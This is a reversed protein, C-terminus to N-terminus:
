EKPLPEGTKFHGSTKRLVEYSWAFNEMFQSPLEVADWPVGNIGAISPYDVRTLLHHLMHGFEHFLTIVDDHALLSVGASDPPPFNCVLYGVPAVVDGDLNKRGICEDIWAGSRKGSRAYLDVYFGGILTDDSSRVDFYQVTEHWGSVSEVVSLKVGYLRDALAFLGDQAREVPFYQRLLDDSLSYRDRKLKELYYTTDWAELPEDALERLADLEAEAALQTKGVLETLFELVENTSSAMKTALSYDAYHDFGVLQALTHRLALIKEINESNDWRPNEAHNSARTSWAKHFERRLARDDAHMMVAHFTPYDLTLWWGEQEHEIAANRARELISAPLGALEAEDKVHRHWADTSDQINQDFLAQTMTLQQKAARFEDKKEETLAVGALRFNRLAHDVVARRAPSTGTPLSEAVRTLAEQLRSNQSLETSHETLLPL